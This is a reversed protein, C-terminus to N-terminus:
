YTLIMGGISLGAGNGMLLAKDGRKLRKKKIAEYLAMPISASSCNGFKDITRMLKDGPFTLSMFDLILKSAQHPIVLKFSDKNIGPWLKRLFMQNYQMATTQLEAANFHILFDEMQTESSALPKLSGGGLLVVLHAADGYTELRVAHIRGTDNNESKQLVTAAAGDGFLTVVEPMTKNLSLSLVESSVVLIKKYRGVMLLNSCFDIGSLFSLCTAHHSMCPIGSGGLGLEKQLLASGDPFTQEGGSSANFILDIDNLNLGADEIAEEAARAGMYSITEDDVWRREKVGQKKESWGKEIGYLSEIEDSNVIKKPLFRGIGAIKIPIPYTIEFTQNM